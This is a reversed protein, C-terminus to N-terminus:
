CLPKLTTFTSHPVQCFPLRYSCASTSITVLPNVAMRLFFTTPSRQTETQIQRHITSTRCITIKKLPPANSLSSNHFLECVIASM